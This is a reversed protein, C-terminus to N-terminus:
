FLGNADYKCKGVYQFCIGDWQYKLGDGTPWDNENVVAIVFFPVEKENEFGSLGILSLGNFNLPPWRQGGGEVKIRNYNANKAHFLQEKVLCGKELSFASIFEWKIAGQHEVFYSTKLVYNSKGDKSKVQYLEEMGGMEDQLLLTDLEGNNKYQIFNCRISAYQTECPISYLRFPGCDKWIVVKEDVSPEFRYYGVNDSYNVFDPHTFLYKYVEEMRTDTYTSHIISDIPNDFATNESEMFDVSEAAQVSSENYQGGVSKDKNQCSCLMAIAVVITIFYCKTNM